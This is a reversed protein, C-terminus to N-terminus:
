VRPCARRATCRRAKAGPPLPATSRAKRLAFKRHRRSHLTAGAPLGVTPRKRPRRPEAKSGRSPHRHESIPARRGLWTAAPDHRFRKNCRQCGSNSKATVFRPQLLPSPSASARRSRTLRSSLRLGHVEPQPRRAWRPRRTSPPRAAPEAQYHRTRRTRERIEPYTPQFGTNSRFVQGSPASHDGVGQM